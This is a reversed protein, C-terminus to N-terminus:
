AGVWILVQRAFKFEHLITKQFAFQMHWIITLKSPFKQTVSDSPRAAQTYVLFQFIVFKKRLLRIKLLVDRLSQHTNVFHLFIFSPFSSLFSQYNKGGFMRSILIQHMTYRHCLLYMPIFIPPFTKRYERLRVVAVNICIEDFTSNM